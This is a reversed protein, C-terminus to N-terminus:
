RSMPLPLPATVPEEEVPDEETWLLIVQPLTFWLTFGLFGAIQLAMLQHVPSIGLSGEHVQMYFEALLIPIFLFFAFKRLFRYALYHARDRRALDYEDNAEAPKGSLRGSNSLTTEQIENWSPRSEFPKVPGNGDTGGLMGCVSTLLIFLTGRAGRVFITMLLAIGYFLFVVTHRRRRTNLAIGFLTRQKM